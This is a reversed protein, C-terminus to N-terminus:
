KVKFYIESNGIQKAETVRSGFSKKLAAYVKKGLPGKAHVRTIGRNRKMMIEDGTYGKVQKAVEIIKSPASEIKKTKM